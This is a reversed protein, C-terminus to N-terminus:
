DNHYLGFCEVCLAIQCENCMYNSRKQVGRKSCQQCRRKTTKVPFHANEFANRLPLPGPKKRATFNGIFQDALLSRFKLHSMPKKRPNYKKLTEKYIIYANVISSDIFYYLLKMWWRRSKWSVCYSELRQDFRDVGGMYKNYDVVSKPCAVTEREGTKNTRLVQGTDAANHMNSCVTVSKTGRDKWKVISIENCVAFDSQGMAIKKDEILHRKPFHKRTQRITGCGFLSRDALKKMLPITTFFNDFYACFGKDELSALLKLIVREGLTDPGAEGKGQYIDFAYLYGTESCALAWVKFGRKVPKMPMYQKLSTRGKFGIMSEDIAVNRSPTFSESYVQSFHTILPRIKYLKDFAPTGRAPMIQNNNLHLCRLVKLFRKIPFVETIRDKHFNRDRSWYLRLSPLHDLGMVILIGLFAKLEEVTLQLNIKIQEAYLNSQQVFYEM